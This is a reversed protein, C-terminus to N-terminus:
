LPAPTSVAQQAAVAAPSAALALAVPAALLAARALAAFSLGTPIPHPRIM